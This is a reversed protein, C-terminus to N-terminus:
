EVGCAPLAYLGAPMESSPLLEQSTNVGRLECERAFEGVSWLRANLESLGDLYGAVQLQQHTWADGLGANHSMELEIQAEEKARLRADPDLGRDLGSIEAIREVRETQVHERFRPALFRYATNLQPRDDVLLARAWSEAVAAFPPQDHEIVQRAERSKGVRMLLQAETATAAAWGRIAIDAVLMTSSDLEPRAQEAQDRLVRRVKSSVRIADLASQEPFRALQDLWSQLDALESVLTSRHLHALSDQIRSQEARNEEALVLLYFFQDSLRALGDQIRVLGAEVCTHLNAVAKQVQDLKYGMYAFGALSVGLNLVSASAAVQSVQLLSGLTQQVRSLRSITVGHGIADLAMNLGPPTPLPARLLVESLGPSEMLHRVVRGTAVERVVGGFRKLSGDLLGKVLSHDDAILRTHILM